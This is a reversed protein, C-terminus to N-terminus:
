AERELARQELWDELESVLWRRASPGVKIPQPFTRAAVGREISSRSLGCYEVVEKCRMVAKEVQMTQSSM